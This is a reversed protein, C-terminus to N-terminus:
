VQRGRDNLDIPAFGSRYTVSKSIALEAARNWSLSGTFTNNTYPAGSPTIQGRALSAVAQPRSPRSSRCRARRASSARQLTWGGSGTPPAAQPAPSHAPRHRRHLSRYGNGQPVDQDGVLRSPLDLAFTYADKYPDAPNLISTGCM